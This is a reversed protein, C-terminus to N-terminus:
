KVKAKKRKKHSLYEDIQQFNAITAPRIMYQAVANFVSDRDAKVTTPNEDYFDFSVRSGDTAVYARFLTIDLGGNATTLTVRYQQGLNTAFGPELRVLVDKRPMEEQIGAVVDNLLSVAETFPSKGVVSKKFERDKLWEKFSGKAM